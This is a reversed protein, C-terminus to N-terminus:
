MQLKSESPLRCCVGSPLLALLWSGEATELSTDVYAARHFQMAKRGCPRCVSINSAVLVLTNQTSCAQSKSSVAYPQLILCLPM